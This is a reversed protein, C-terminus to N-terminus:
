KAPVRAVRLGLSAYRVTLLFPIHRAALGPPDNWSGGRAFRVESGDGSRGADVCWELVNGHMDYLGLRNPAYLGVKCTRNISGAYACNARDPPLSNSPEGTYFHFASSAKDIPGGRCAYEWEAETPLRYTWGARKDRENLKALFTQVDAYSVGEVPFRKLAEDPIDKVAAKRFGERSYHAPNSGMVKEWEEQTVPYVGLYFDDKIDVEKDGPKGDGGGLWGKGKPVLAFEMGVPNTFPRQKAPVVGGAEWEVKCQPLAAALRKAGAETVPTFKLNVGRLRKFTAIRDIASDGIQTHPLVLATLDSSAQFHALGADTVETGELNLYTVLTCDKFHALGADSVHPGQVILYTLNRCDKFNALGDDSVKPGRLDASTLEFLGGPLDTGPRLKSSKGEERIDIVGGVSLAWAAARRDPDVPVRALRLGINGYRYSPLHVFRNAARCFQPPSWYSGGRLVRHSTGTPQNPAPVQDDCWQHVNGHMDYLGLRNPRYADVPTPIGEDGNGFNEQDRRLDNAPKEFYFNFASAERDVPGGRCAYEWEAETPLRYVWGTEKAKANVRNVFKLADDWSVSEVPFRKLAEDSLDKVTDKRTGNRSFIAPNSGMVKEWEDQTVPYVGIYFDDKFDVEKEGPKGDGGGLWGKSKPVLAFELGLSSVFKAPRSKPDFVGGDWEIRCQPLAAAVETVGAATVATGRLDLLHLSRVTALRRLGVDTFTRNAPVLLESVNTSRALVEATRDTVGAESLNLRTLTPLKLLDSLGNDSPGCRITSIAELHHLQRLRKIAEEWLSPSDALHVKRVEFKGGPLQESARVTTSQNGLRVEVFSLGGQGLVWEAVTRDPDSGSPGGAAKERASEIEQMTAKVVQRGGREITFKKTLARAGSKPDLFEVEGSGARLVFSRNTSKDRVEADAGMVVVEIRPDDVEIVLEGKNTAIRIITPAFYLGLGVLLVAAALAVRRGFRHRPQVRVVAPPAVETDDADFEFEPRPRDTAPLSEVSPALLSVVERASQPRRAPDKELLRLILIAFSVPVRPNFLRPDAAADAALAMLMSATDAGQFPTRGTCARYLVGGLSFLDTRFDVAQGRGQEPSMYAPTGMVAGSRTIEADPVSGKLPRALGFDLIKVRARSGELWINAPKIDRHALGRDHAAALGEAVERGIRAAEAIPLTGERKLRDDLSEGKLFPMVLFPVGAEEAILHIPVVHDHEVAAAAKAERLFRAKANPDAAIRPLMAKVAVRRGLKPDEAEFVVGMGGRGLVRLIRFDGLWGLEDPGRPPALFACENEETRRGTLEGSSDGGATRTQEAPLAELRRALAEAEVPVAPNGTRGRFAKVFLDSTVLRDLLVATDPHTEIYAEVTAAETASLQGLLFRRLTLDDPAIV